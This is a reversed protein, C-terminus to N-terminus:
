LTGVHIQCSAGNVTLTESLFCPHYCLFSLFLFVNNLINDNFFFFKKQEATHLFSVFFFKVM